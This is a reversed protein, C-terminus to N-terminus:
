RKEATIRMFFPHSSTNTIKFGQKKLMKIIVSQPETREYIDGILKPIRSKFVWSRVDVLYFTGQKKLVRYVESFVKEYPPIHHLVNISYAADFSNNKFPLKTADVIKFTANKINEKAHKIQKKDLDIATIKAKDALKKTMEGSGCGVELIKNKKKLKSKLAQILTNYNSNASFPGIIKNVFFREVKNMEAM